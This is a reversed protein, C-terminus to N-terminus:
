ALRNSTSLVSGHAVASWRTGTCRNWFSVMSHRGAPRMALASCPQQQASSPRSTLTIIAHPALAQVAHRFSRQMLNCVCFHALHVAHGQAAGCGTAWLCCCFRWSAPCCGPLAAAHLCTIPRRRVRQQGQSGVSSNRLHDINLVDQAHRQESRLALVAVAVDAQRLQQCGDHVQVVDAQAARGRRHQRRRQRCLSLYLGSRKRNCAQVPDSRCVAKAQSVHHLIHRYAHQSQWGQSRLAASRHITQLGLKDPRSHISHQQLPLVAVWALSHRVASLM